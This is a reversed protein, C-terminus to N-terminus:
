SEGDKGVGAGPARRRHQRRLPAGDRPARVRSMADVFAAITEASGPLAPLGREECWASYIALDSRMARETNGSLAGHAAMACADLPDHETCGASAPAPGSLTEVLM